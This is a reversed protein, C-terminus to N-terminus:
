CSNGLQLLQQCLSHTMPLLGIIFSRVDVDQQIVLSPLHSLELLVKSFGPCTVSYYSLCYVSVRSSSPANM